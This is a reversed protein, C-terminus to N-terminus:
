DSRCVADLVVTIVRKTWVPRRVCAPRRNRRTGSGNWTGRSSSPGPAVKGRMRLEPVPLISDSRKSAVGACNTFQRIEQTSPVTSALRFLPTAPSGPIATLHKPDSQQEGLSQQISRHIWFITPPFGHCNFALRPDETQITKGIRAAHAQHPMPRPNRVRARGFQGPNRGRRLRFERSLFSAGASDDRPESSKECTSM